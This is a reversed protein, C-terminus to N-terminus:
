RPLAHLAGLKAKRIEELELEESSKLHATGRLRRDTAFHMPAAPESSFSSSRSQVPAM